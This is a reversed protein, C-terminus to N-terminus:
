SETGTTDDIILNGILRPIEVDDLTVKKINLIRNDLAYHRQNASTTLNFTDEIVESDICFLDKARNLLNTVEKQGMHPHHQRVLEIMAQKTM